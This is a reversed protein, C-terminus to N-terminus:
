AIAMRYDIQKSLGATKLLYNISKTLEKSSKNISM